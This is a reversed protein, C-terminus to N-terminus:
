ATHFARPSFGLSFFGRSILYCVRPLRKATPKVSRPQFLPHPQSTKSETKEEEKEGQAKESQGDQIIMCYYYNERQKETQQHFETWSPPEYITTYEQKQTQLTVFVRM